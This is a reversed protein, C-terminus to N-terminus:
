HGIEASISIKWKFFESAEVNVANYKRDYVILWIIQRSVMLPTKWSTGLWQLSCCLAINIKLSCVKRDGTVKGVLSVNCKERKAIQQITDISNEHLLIADNEQYEAGWLERISITPDGLPFRSAEIVAGGEEGDVLEKLVNGLHKVSKILLFFYSSPM